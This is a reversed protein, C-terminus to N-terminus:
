DQQEAPDDDTVAGPEVIRKYVVGPRHFTGGMSAPIVAVGIGAAVLGVITQTHDAKQVIRPALGAQQCLAVTRDNFNPGMHRRLMIFRDNELSRLSLSERNALRHLDPLAVVLPERFGPMSNLQRDEIPQRLM